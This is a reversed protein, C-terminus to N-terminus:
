TKVVPSKLRRIFFFWIFFALIFLGILVVKFQKFYVLIEDGYYAIFLVQTPVTLLAAVGDTLLFKTYSIRMSGCMFHGPFRIGPTFRFIACAWVGYKRTWIRVKTLAVESIFRSFPKRRLMALGYKRGLTFVLLDSILVSGFCVISLTIPNVNPPNGTALSETLSLYAIMGSSLLVVEEPLPLGFSSAFLILIVGAYLQLPHHSIEMLLNRIIEELEPM